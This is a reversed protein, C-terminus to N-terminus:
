KSNSNQQRQYRAPIGNIFRVDSIDGGWHRSIDTLTSGGIALVGGPTLPTIDAIDTLTQQLDPRSSFEPTRTFSVISDHPAATNADYTFVIHYWRDQEWPVTKKTQFSVYRNDSDLFGFGLTGSHDDTFLNFQSTSHLKTNRYHFLTDSDGQQKINPNRAWLEITFRRMDFLAAEQESLTRFLKHYQTEFPGAASTINQPAPCGTFPSQGQKNLINLHLLNDGSDQATQSTERENLKWHAILRPQDPVINQVFLEPTSIIRTMKRSDAQVRVATNETLDRTITTERSSNVLDFRVLGQLVHVETERTPTVILGFSTGLDVVRSTPTDVTLGQSQPPVHAFLNGEDLMFQDAQVLTLHSVGKLIVKAGTITELEIIGANLHIQDGVHLIDDPQWAPKGESWITNKTNIIRALFRPNEKQWLSSTLLYVAAFICVSFALIASLAKRRDPASPKTELFEPITKLEGSPLPEYDTSRGLPGPDVIGEWELNACMGSYQIFFDRASDSQLVLKELRGAQRSSLNGYQYEWCLQMLEEQEEPTLM